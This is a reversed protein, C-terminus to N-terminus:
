IIISLHMKYIYIRQYTLNIVKVVTSWRRQSQLIKKIQIKEPKPTRIKAPKMTWSFLFGPFYLKGM